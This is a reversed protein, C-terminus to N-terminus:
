KAEKAYKERLEVEGWDVVSVVAKKWFDKALEWFLEAGVAIIAFPLLLLTLFWSYTRYKSM